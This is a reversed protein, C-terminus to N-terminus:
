AMKANLNVYSQLQKWFADQDVFSSKSIRVRQQAVNDGLYGARLVQFRNLPLLAFSEKIKNDFKWQIKLGFHHWVCSTVRSM